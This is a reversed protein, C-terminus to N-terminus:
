PVRIKPVDAAISHGFATTKLSIYHSTLKSQYGNIQDINSPCEIPQDHIMLRGPGAYCIAYTYKPWNLM